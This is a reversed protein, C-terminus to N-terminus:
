SQQRATKLAKAMWILEDYAAQASKTYTAAYEPKLNGQEDFLEQVKPFYLERQINVLGVKHCVPLLAECVRVGGWMGSSVGAVIAAKHKYNEYESDLMRKLSSPFSHNYEPTVIFFADAHATIESYKPDSGDEPAGDPPLQLDNPDVFVIEVGPQKRGLEAVWRAAKISERGERKTGALVAIVLSDSENM